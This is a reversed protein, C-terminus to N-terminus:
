NFMEIIEIDFKSLINYGYNDKPLNKYHEIYDNSSINENNSFLTMNYVKKHQNHLKYKKIILIVNDFINDINSELEDKTFIDDTGDKYEVLYEYNKIQAM